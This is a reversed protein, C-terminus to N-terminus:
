FFPEQCGINSLSFPEREEDKQSHANSEEKQTILLNKALLIAHM